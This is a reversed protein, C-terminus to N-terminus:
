IHDLRISLITDTKNVIAITFHKDYIEIAKLNNSMDLLLSYLQEINVEDANIDFSINEYDSACDSIKISSIDYNIILNYLGMLQEFANKIFPELVEELPHESNTSEGLRHLYQIRDGIM